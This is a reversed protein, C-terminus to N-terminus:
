KTRQLGFWGDQNYGIYGTYDGDIIIDYAKTVGQNKLSNSINSKYALIDNEVIFNTIDVSDISDENGGKLKDVLEWFITKEDNESKTELKINCVPYKKIKANHQKSFTSGSSDTEILKCEFAFAPKYGNGSKLRSGFMNTIKDDFTMSGKNFTGEENGNTDLFGFYNDDKWIISEQNLQKAIDLANQKPINYIILSDEIGQEGNEYTYTGELYNFGINSVKERLRSVLSKLENFRSKKSDKDQSGIVAFTDKNKTHQYLRSLSAEEKKTTEEKKNKIMDFYEKDFKEYDKIINDLKTGNYSNDQIAQQMYGLLMVLSWKDLGNRNYRDVLDDIKSSITNSSMNKLINNEILNKNESLEASRLEYYRDKLQPIMEQNRLEKFVLNGVSAEGDQALGLKRMMYIENVLDLIQQPDNSLIAENCMNEYKTLEESIDPIDYTIPEPFMVWNDNSLSYRGNTANGDNIDEIYLEVPIGEISLDYNDNFSNKKSNYLM